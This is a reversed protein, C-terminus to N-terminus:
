FCKILSFDRLTRGLFVFADNIDVSYLFPVVVFIFGAWLLVWGIRHGWGKGSMVSTYWTM